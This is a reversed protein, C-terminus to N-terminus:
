YSLEDFNETWRFFFVATLDKELELEESRLELGVIGHHLEAGHRLRKTNTAPLESSPLICQIRGDTPQTPLGLVGTPPSTSRVQKLQVDCRIVGLVGSSAM